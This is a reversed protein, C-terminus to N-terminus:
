PQTDEPFNFKLTFFGTKAGIRAEVQIWAQDGELVRVSPWVQWDAGLLDTAYEITWSRADLILSVPFRLLITQQTVRIISAPAEDSV